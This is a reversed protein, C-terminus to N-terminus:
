LHTGFEFRSICLLPDLSLSYLLALDVFRGHALQRARSGTSDMRYPVATARHNYLLERM